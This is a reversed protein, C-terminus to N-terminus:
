GAIVYGRLREDNALGELNQMESPGKNRKESARQEVAPGNVVSIVCSVM